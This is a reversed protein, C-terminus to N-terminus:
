KKLQIAQIFQQLKNLQILQEVPMVPMRDHVGVKLQGKEWRGYATCPGRFQECHSYNHIIHTPKVDASFTFRRGHGHALQDKFMGIHVTRTSFDWQEGLGQQAFKHEPEFAGIYVIHGKRRAGYVVQRQKNWWGHAVMEFPQSLLSTQLAVFAPPLVDDIVSYVGAVYPMKPCSACAQYCTGEADTGVTLTTESLHTTHDHHFVSMTRQKLDLVKLRRGSQWVSLQFPTHFRLVFETGFRRLIVGPHLSPQFYFLRDNTDDLHCDSVSARLKPPASYFTYIGTM